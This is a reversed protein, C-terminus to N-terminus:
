QTEEKRAIFVPDGVNIFGTKAVELNTGFRPGHDPGSHKRYTELTKLPQRNIDRIGNESSITTFVCRTCDKVNRLIVNDGVKIWDWNDEDYPQLDPGDVIINHRFNEVTVNSNNGVRKNLDHVSHQNILTVSSLDAFLGTSHNSLNKYYNLLKHHTKTIDRRHSADNYGLRLGFDREIIYRSFWGAAEDGCDIAEIHENNWCKVKAVANDKRNPIKVYLTRMTPADIALHDEDHVSVDILVMKPYTRATRFEHDKAGYVVLVRDRLQFIKEDEKTQRLGVETVEARQLEVRHGSKLPYLHLKKVSGIREWNSPIKVQKWKQYLYSGVVTVATVLSTFLVTQTVSNLGM